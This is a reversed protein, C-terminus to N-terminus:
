VAQRAHTRRLAILQCFNAQVGHLIEQKVEGQTVFVASLKILNAIEKGGNVGGNFAFNQVAVDGEASAPHHGALYAVAGANEGHTKEVEIRRHFVAQRRAAPHQGIALGFPPLVACLHDVRLVAYLAIEARRLQLLREGRNVRRRFADLLRRQTFEGILRQLQQIGASDGLQQRGLQRLAHHAQGLRQAGQM